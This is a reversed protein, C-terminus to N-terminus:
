AIRLGIALLVDLRGLLALFDVRNGIQVGPPGTKINLLVLALQDIGLLLQALLLAERRPGEDQICQELARDCHLLLQVDHIINGVLRVLVHVADIRVVCLHDKLRHQSLVQVVDRVVLQSGLDLSHVVCASDGHEDPGIPGLLISAGDFEVHWLILPSAEAGELLEHASAVELTGVSELCNIHSRLDLGGELHVDIQVSVFDEIEVIVDTGELLQVVDQSAVAVVLQAGLEHLSRGLVAPVSEAQYRQDCSALPVECLESVVSLALDLNRVLLLWAILLLEFSEELSVDVDEVQLASRCRQTLLLEHFSGHFHWEDAIQEASLGQPLVPLILSLLVSDLLLLGRQPHLLLALGDDEDEHAVFVVDEYELELFDGHRLSLVSVDDFQRLIDVHKLQLRQVEFVYDQVHTIADGVLQELDLLSSVDVDITAIHCEAEAVVEDLLDVALHLEKDSSHLDVIQSPLPARM